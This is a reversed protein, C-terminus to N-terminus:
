VPIIKPLHILFTVSNSDAGSMWISQVLNTNNLRGCWECRHMNQYRNYEIKSLMNKEREYKNNTLIEITASHHRQMDTEKNDAIHRIRLFPLCVPSFFYYSAKDCLTNDTLEISCCVILQHTQSVLHEEKETYFSM